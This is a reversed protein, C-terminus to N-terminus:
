VMDGKAVSLIIKMAGKDGNYFILAKYIRAALMIVYLSSCLLIVLSVLFMPVSMTGMVLEAPVTLPSSFPIINALMLLKKNNTMFGGETIFMSLMLPLAYIRTCGTLDEPKVALSGSIAALSCYFFFGAFFYIVAATVMVPSIAAAGAIMRIYERGAAFSDIYGPFISKAAMSFLLKFAFFEVVIVVIQLVAALFMGITKGLMLSYPHICTLLNEMMKTKKEGAVEKAVSSNYLVVLMYFALSILVPMIVTVVKDVGAVDHVGDSDIESYSVTVAKIDKNGDIQAEPYIDSIKSQLFEMVTEEVRNVAAEDVGISNKIFDVYYDSEERYIYVALPQENRIALMIIDARSCNTKYVSIDGPMQAKDSCFAEAYNVDELGSNDSIYVTSLTVTENRKLNIGFCLYAMLAFLILSLVLFTRKYSRSIIKQYFTFGLVEQFGEFKNM